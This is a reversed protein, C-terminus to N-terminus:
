QQTLLCEHLFHITDNSTTHNTLSQLMFRDRSHLDKTFIADNVYKTNAKVYLESRIMMSGREVSATNIDVTVIQNWETQNEGKQRAIFDWAIMEVASPSQLMLPATKDFWNVNYMSDGKTFMIWDCSPLDRGTVKNGDTAFDSPCTKLALLLQLLADMNEYALGHKHANSSSKKNFFVHLFGDSHKNNMAEALNLLVSSYQASHDVDLLILSLDIQTKFSSQSYQTIFAQILIAIWNVHERSTTVAVCLKTKQKETTEKLNRTRYSAGKVKQFDLSGKRKGLFQQTLLPQLISSLSKMSRETSLVSQMALITKKRIDEHQLYFHMLSQLDNVKDFVPLSLSAKSLAEGFTTLIAMRNNSIPLANGHLADIVVSSVTGWTTAEQNANDVM